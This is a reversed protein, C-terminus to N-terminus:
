SVEIIYKNITLPTFPIKHKARKNPEKAKKTLPVRLEM